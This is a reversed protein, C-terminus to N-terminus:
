ENGAPASADRDHGSAEALEMVLRVRRQADALRLAGATVLYEVVMGDLMAGLTRALVDVDVSASLEGRAVCERLLISTVTLGREYRVAMLERIVPRRAAEAWAAALFVAAGPAEIAYRWWGQVARSMRDAHSSAAQADSLVAESEEKMAALISGRILEDKNRFYGYIAGVSLGSAAVVDDINARHFGKEVFVQRAAKLIRQRTAEEREATIRPM